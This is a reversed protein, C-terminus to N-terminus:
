RAWEEKKRNEKVESVGEGEYERRGYVLNGEM